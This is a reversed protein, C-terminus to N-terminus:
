FYTDQAASTGCSLNCPERTADTGLLLIILQRINRRPGASFGSCEWLIREYTQVEQVVLNLNYM